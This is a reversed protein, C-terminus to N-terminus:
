TLVECDLGNATSKLYERGTFVVVYSVNSLEGMISVVRRRRGELLQRRVRLCVGV